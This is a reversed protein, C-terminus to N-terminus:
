AKKKEAVEMIHAYITAIIHFLEDPIRAGLELQSLLVATSEDKHVPIGHKEATAIIKEAVYGNGTAVIVPATDNEENYRLAVATNKNRYQRKISKWKPIDSNFGQM